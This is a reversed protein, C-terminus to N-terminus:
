LERIEKKNAKKVPQAETKAVVIKSKATLLDTQIKQICTQSKKLDADLSSVTRKFRKHLTTLVQNYITRHQLWGLRNTSIYEYILKAKRTMQQHALKAKGADNYNVLTGPVRMKKVELIPPPPCCQSHVLM